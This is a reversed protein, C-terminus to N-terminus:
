SVGAARMAIRIVFAAGTATAACIGSARAGAAITAGAAVAVGAELVCASAACKAAYEAETPAPSGASPLADGGADAAEAAM